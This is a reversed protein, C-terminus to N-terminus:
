RASHRLRELAVHVQINEPQLAAARQLWAIAQESRQLTEAATGALVLADTNNPERQLVQQALELAVASRALLLHAQAAGLMALTHDPSVQLAHQFQVLADEAEHRQLLTIGIAARPEAQDFEARGIGAITPFEETKFTRLLTRNREGTALYLARPASFELPLRDDTNLGAGDAFRAADNEGLVFYGFVGAWGVIGVRNLDPRIAPLSDYRAKLADVDLPGPETKGLLLLDGSATGWVTTQPFVSRFTAVVMQLDQTELNYDQIWQVMAGGARLHQRALQFFEVSFLSALGSIWPNSPESIIVDYDAHDSALAHRADAITLRVRRDDLVNGHEKAFYHSAQVVAPEIEALDLREIPHRAAAGATIGSGLGIVLVAKPDPHLLLPLHAVLLQTSMDVGTGGEAKGNVKLSLYPGKQHVSVTSSIGDRYFLLNEESLKQRLTTRSPMESYKGAYVAPGSSLLQQDWPPLALVVAVVVLTAATASWRWARRSRNPAMLFLALGLVLNIAIGFTISRHVGVAPILLFGTAITGAIAGVTNAAYAQGVRQGVGHDGTRLLAVAGPLTAGILIAPLLLAMISSTIQLVHMFTPSHSWAWAALFWDPMQEFVLVTSLVALGIGTQIAALNTLGSRFRKLAGAYLASGLAIGLLFAVLMSTFAYTSSGIVLVLARTWAVEYLMSVAGSVGLTVLILWLPLHSEDPESWTAPESRSLAGATSVRDACDVPASDFTWTKAKATYAIVIMGVLVNVIAAMALTIQNGLVPLAVYGALMVGLVAGATNVAYLMGVTQGLDRAERSLAHSLIPLTGGMLATPVFLLTFIILFQLLNFTDDSLAFSSQLYLYLPTTLPLLITMVAAFIGVGIELWGYIRIPNILRSTLRGFLLSGVALGAMYATLVTTLAYVTHGFVLGLMRLWVVEYILATAGSIFFCLILLIVSARRPM